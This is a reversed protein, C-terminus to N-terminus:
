QEHATEPAKTSAGDQTQDTETPLGQGTKPQSPQRPQSSPGSTQSAKRSQRSIREAEEAHLKWSENNVGEIRSRDLSLLAECTKRTLHDFARRSKKNFKTQIFKLQDRTPDESLPHINALSPPSPPRSLAQESMIHSILESHISRHYLPYILQRLPPLTIHRNHSPETESFENYVFRLPSSCSWLTFPLLVRTATIKSLIQSYSRANTLLCSPKPFFLIRCIVV